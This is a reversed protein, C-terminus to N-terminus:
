VEGELRLLESEFGLESMERLSTLAATLTERAEDLHGARCLADVLIADYHAAGSKEGISTAIQRAERITAVGEDYAGRLVSAAGGWLRAHAYWQLWGQESSLT